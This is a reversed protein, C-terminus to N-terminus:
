QLDQDLGLDPKVGSNSTCSTRANLKVTQGILPTEGNQEKCSCLHYVKNKQEGFIVSGVGWTKESLSEIVKQLSWKQRRKSTM